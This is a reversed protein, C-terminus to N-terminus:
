PDSRRPGQQCAFTFWMAAVSATRAAHQPANTAV